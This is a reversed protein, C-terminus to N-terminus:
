AAVESEELATKKRTKVAALLKDFSAAPVHKLSEIKYNKCFYDEASAFGEGYSCTSLEESLEKVQSANIYEPEPTKSSVIELDQGDDDTQAVNAFAALSYRRLYTILKGAAQAANTEQDNIHMGIQDRIWQGSPHTLLTTVVVQGTEDRSPSQIIGLQAQTFAPRVVDLVTALDAYKSKFYPNVQSKAPNQILGQAQALAAAIENIEASTEM